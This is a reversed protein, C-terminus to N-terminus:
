AIFIALPVSSIRCSLFLMDLPNALLRCVRADHIAAAESFFNGRGAPRRVRTTIPVRTYSEDVFHRVGHNLYRSLIRVRTSPFALSSHM